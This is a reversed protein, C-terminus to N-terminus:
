TAAELVRGAAWRALSPLDGKEPAVHALLNQPGLAALRRQGGAGYMNDLDALHEALATYAGAVPDTRTDVARLFANALTRPQANGSEALVLHAYAHPATSGLKAGPTVTAILHVLRRVVEAALKRDATAWAERPCGEINSVLLPVDVAVYGYFLGTTLESTNIHGSGQEGREEVIDDVAAFYDSEVLEAHVTFAHAVHVAADGRALIDSTVMRGFLAADIGAGRRMTVLNAKQEKGLHKELAAEVAEPDASKADLAIARTLARLAEIEPWGLVTVQGTEIPKRAGTEAVASDGGDASAVAEVGAKGKAGRGKAAAKPQKAEKAEKKAKASEGLVAAMVARVAADVADQPLGDDVLPKVVYEEFTRRSRVSSQIETGEHIFRTIAHEGDFRRWHRKLCQSSVRTRMASGFPIRKAFGLDDRNLLSAPYSTLYHIQLFRAPTNV